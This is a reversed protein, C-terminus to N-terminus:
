EWGGTFEDLGNEGEICKERMNRAQESWGYIEQQTLMKYKVYSNMRKYAKNFAKFIPDESVIHQYVSLAGIADCPLAEGEPVKDCYKVDRRGRSVFIRGCRQCKIM